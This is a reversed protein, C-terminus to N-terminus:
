RIRSGFNEPNITFTLYNQIIMRQTSMRVPCSETALGNQMQKQTANIKTVVGAESEVEVSKRVSFVM